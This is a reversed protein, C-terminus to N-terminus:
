EQYMVILVSMREEVHYINFIKKIDAASYLNQMEKTLEIWIFDFCPHITLFDELDILLDGKRSKQLEIHNIIDCVSTSLGQADTICGINHYYNLSNLITQIIERGDLINKTKITHIGFSVFTEQLKLVDNESFPLTFLKNDLEDYFGHNEKILISPTLIHAM